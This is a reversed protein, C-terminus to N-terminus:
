TRNRQTTRGVPPPAGDLTTAIGGVRGERLAIEASSPQLYNPALAFAKAEDYAAGRLEGLCLAAVARAPPAHPEPDVELGRLADRNALAGPGVIRAPRGLSAIWAPLAEARLVTEPAVVRDNEVACAYV